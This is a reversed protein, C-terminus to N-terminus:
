RWFIKQGTIILGCAALVFCFVAIAWYSAIVTSHLFAFMRWRARMVDHEAMYIWLFGVLCAFLSAVFTAFVPKEKQMEWLDGFNRAQAMELSSEEAASLRLIKAQGRRHTVGSLNEFAESRLYNELRGVLSLKFEKRVEFFEDFAGAKVKEITDRRVTGMYLTAAHDIQQMVFTRVFLQLSKYSKKSCQPERVDTSYEYVDIVEDSVAVDLADTRAVTPTYQARSTFTPIRATSLGVALLAQQLALKATSSEM